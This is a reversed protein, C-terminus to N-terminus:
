AAAGDDRLLEFHCWALLHRDPDDFVGEIVTELNPANPGHILHWGGTIGQFFALTEWLARPDDEFERVLSGTVEWLREDKWYKEAVRM